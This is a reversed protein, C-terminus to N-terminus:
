RRRGLPMEWQSFPPCFGLVEGEGQVVHVGDLVAIGQGVVCWGLGCSRRNLCQRVHVSYLGWANAVYLPADWIRGWFHGKGLVSGWVGSGAEDMSGDSSHRWVADPDSGGNEVICQVSRRVSRCITWPFTQRSYAAVGRVLAVRGLVVIRSTVVAPAM